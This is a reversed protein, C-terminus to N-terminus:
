NGEPWSGKLIMQLPVVIASHDSYSWSPDVRPVGARARWSSGNPPNIVFVNDILQRNQKHTFRPERCADNSCVPGYIPELTVAERSLGFGTNSTRYWPLETRAGQRAGCKWCVDAGLLPQSHTNRAFSVLEESDPEANFDGAVIVPLGSSLQVSQVFRSIVQLQVIRQFAAEVSPVRGSVGAVSERKLTSLHVNILICVPEPAGDAGVCGLVCAQAVRPDTDRSGRYYTPRFWVKRQSDGLRVSSELWPDTGLDGELEPFEFAPLDIIRTLSSVSTPGDLAVWPLLTLGTRDSVVCLGESQAGSRGVEAGWKEVLPYWATSVRPVFTSLDTALHDELAAARTPLGTETTTMEQIAMVLGGDSRLSSALRVMEPMGDEDVLSSGVHRKGGSFNTVLLNVPALGLESPAM